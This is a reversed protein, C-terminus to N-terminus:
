FKDAFGGILPIQTKKDTIAYVLGIIWLVFLGLSVIWGVLAFLGLTIISLFVYAVNWIVSVILLVLAQKAHHKAFANKKMQEDVFYWIIGVLFYSLIACIKANDNSM